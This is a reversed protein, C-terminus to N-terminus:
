GFCAYPCFFGDGFAVCCQTAPDWSYTCGAHDYQSCDPVCIEPCFIWGSGCDVHGQQSPNASCNQDVATCTGTGRCSVTTGGDCNATATCTSKMPLRGGSSKAPQAAPPSGTGPSALSLARWLPDAGLDQQAWCTSSLLFLSFAIMFGLAQKM